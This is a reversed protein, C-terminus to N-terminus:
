GCRCIPSRSFPWYLLRIQLNSHRSDCMWRRDYYGSHTHRSQVYILSGARCVHSIHSASFEGSLGRPKNEQKTSATLYAGSLCVVTCQQLNELPLAFPPFSSRAPHYTRLQACGGGKHEEIVRHPEIAITLDHQAIHTAKYRCQDVTENVTM